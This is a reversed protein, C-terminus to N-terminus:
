AVQSESKANIKLSGNVVSERKHAADHDSDCGELEDWLCYTKGEIKLRMATALM